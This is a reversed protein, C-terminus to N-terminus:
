TDIGEMLARFRPLLYRYLLATVAESSLDILVDQDVVRVTLGRAQDGSGFTLGERLTEAALGSVFRGLDSQRWEDPDRRILDIEAPPVPFEVELRDGEAEPLSKAAIVLILRRLFEPEAMVQGVLRDLRAHFKDAVEERLTLVADRVAQRIAEEGAKHTRGAERRADVAITEAERRADAVTRDAERRAEALLAKAQDEGATVGEAKLRDILTQVGTTQTQEAM